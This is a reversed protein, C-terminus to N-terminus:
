KILLLDAPCDGLTKEYLKRYDDISMGLKEAEKAITTVTEGDHLKIEEYIDPAVDNYPNDDTNRIDTTEIENMQEEMNRVTEKLDSKTTNHENMLEQVQKKTPRQIENEVPSGM